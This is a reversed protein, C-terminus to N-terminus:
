AIIDHIVDGGTDTLRLKRVHLRLNAEYPRHRASLAGETTQAMTVAARYATLNIEQCIWCRRFIM